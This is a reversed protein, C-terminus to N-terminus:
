QPQRGHGKPVLSNDVQLQKTLSEKIDVWNAPGYSIIIVIIIITVLLALSGIDFVM